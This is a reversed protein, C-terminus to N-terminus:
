RAFCIELKYEFGTHVGTVLNQVLARITGSLAKAKQSPLEAKVKVTAAKNLGLSARIQKTTMYDGNQELMRLIYKKHLKM